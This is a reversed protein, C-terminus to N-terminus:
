SVLLLCEVPGAAAVAAAASSSAVPLPPPPPPALSPRDRVKWHVELATASVARCRVEAPVGPVCLHEALTWGPPTPQQQQKEEEWLARPPPQDCFKCRREFHLRSTDVLKIGYAHKCCSPAVQRRRPRRRSAGGHGQERRRTLMTSRRHRCEKCFWRWSPVEALGVCALHFAGACKVGDCLLLLGGLDQCRACHPMSHDDHGEGSAGEGGYDSVGGKGIGGYSMNHHRSGNFNGNNNNNDNSNDNGEYSAKM